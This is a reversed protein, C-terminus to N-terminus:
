LPSLGVVQSGCGGAGDGDGLVGCGGWIISNTLVWLNRGTAKLLCTVDWGCCGGMGVEPSKRQPELFHEM